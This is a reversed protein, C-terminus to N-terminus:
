KGYKNKMQEKKNMQEYYLDREKWYSLLNLCEILNTEYIEKHKTIDSNSLRDVMALWSWRSDLTIQGPRLSDTSVGANWLGAFDKRLGREWRNFFFPHEM